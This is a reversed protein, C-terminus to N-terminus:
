KHRENDTEAVLVYRGDSTSNKDTSYMAARGPDLDNGPVYYTSLASTSHILPLPSNCLNFSIICTFICRLMQHM